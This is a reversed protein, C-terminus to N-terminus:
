KGLGFSSQNPEQSHQSEKPPALAFPRKYPTHLHSSKYRRKLAGTASIGKNLNKQKEAKEILTAPESVPLHGTVFLMNKRQLYILLKLYCKRGEALRGIKDMSFDTEQWQHHAGHRKVSNFSKLPSRGVQRRM